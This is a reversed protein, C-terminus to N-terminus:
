DPRRVLAVGSATVIAAGLLTAGGPVEGFVAYGLLSAWIIQSYVMPSVVATPARRFAAILCLHAAAGFAGGAAMLAWEGRTMDQWTWPLAPSVLAMAVLGVYFLLALPHEGRGAYRTLVHFGANCVAMALPYLLQWGAGPAGPQLAVLVGAFGAGILVGQRVSPREGLLVAALVTALLPTCFTIAYTQAMPLHRLSLIVFVTTLLLLAGRGLHLLPRGTALMRRPGLVPMAALLIVTQALNRAWALFWPDYRQSLYKLVTDLSTFCAVAVVMLLAGAVADTRGAPPPADM